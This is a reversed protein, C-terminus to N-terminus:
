RWDPPPQAPPAYVREREGHRDAEVWDSVPQPPADGLAYRAFRASEDEYLQSGKGLLFWLAYAALATGFPVNLAMLIAAVIGATRGWSKRKLLGYAAVLAPTFFLLSAAVVLGFVMLVFAFPPASRGPENWILYFFPLAFVSAVVLLLAQLGGYVLHLVGLTKNHEEPTM